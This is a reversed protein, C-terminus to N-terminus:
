PMHCKIEGADIRLQVNDCGDRDNDIGLYIEGAEYAFVRIYIPIKEQKENEQWASMYIRDGNDLVLSMDHM